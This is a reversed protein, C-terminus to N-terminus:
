AVLQLQPKLYKEFDSSFRSKPPVYNAPCQNSFDFKILEVLQISKSEKATLNQLHSKPIGIDCLLKINDNFTSKPTVSKAHVFGKDKVFVYFRYANM